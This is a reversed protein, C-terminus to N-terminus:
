LTVPADVVVPYDLTFEYLDPPSAPQSGAYSPPHPIRLPAPHPRIYSCQARSRPAKIQKSSSAPWPSLGGFPRVQAGRPARGVTVTRPPSVPLIFMASIAQKWGPWRGWRISPQRASVPRTM